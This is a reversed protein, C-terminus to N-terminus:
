GELQFGDRLIRRVSELHTTRYMKEADAYVEAKAIPENRLKEYFHVLKTATEVHRELISIRDAAQREALDDEYADSYFGEAHLRLTEKIGFAVWHRMFHSRSNMRPDMHQEMIRGLKGLEEHDYRINVQVGGNVERLSGLPPKKGGEKVIDIEVEDGFYANWGDLGPM